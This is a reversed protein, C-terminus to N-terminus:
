DIIKGDEINITGMIRSGVQGQITVWEGKQLKAAAEFPIDVRVGRDGFRDTDIDISAGSILGSHIGSVIGQFQILKDKYIQDGRAENNNYTNIVSRINVKTYEKQVEETSPQASDESSSNASWIGGVLICFCIIIILVLVNDSIGGKKKEVMQSVPKGCSACFKANEGIEAGM